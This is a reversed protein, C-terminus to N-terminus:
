FRFWSLVESGLFWGLCLLGALMLIGAILLVPWWMAEEYVGPYVIEKRVLFDVFKEYVALVAAAASSLLVAGLLVTGSMGLVDLFVEM